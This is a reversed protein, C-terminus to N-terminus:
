RRCNRHIIQPREFTSGDIAIGLIGSFNVLLTSSSNGDEYEETVLFYGFRLMLDELAAELGTGNERETMKVAKNEELSSISADHRPSDLRKAM